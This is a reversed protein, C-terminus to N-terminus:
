AISELRTTPRSITSNFKEITNELCSSAATLKVYLDALEAAQESVDGRVSARAIQLFQAVHHLPPLGILFEQLKREAAALANARAELASLSIQKQAVREAQQACQGFLRTVECDSSDSASGSNEALATWWFRRLASQWEEYADHPGGVADLELGNLHGSLNTRYLTTDDPMAAAFQGSALANFARLVADVEIRAAPASTVGKGPKRELLRSLHPQFVWANDCYPATEFAHASGGEIVVLPLNTAAAVHVPGSDASVMLSADCCLDILDQVSTKGCLDVLRPHAAFSSASKHAGAGIVSVHAGRDLLEKALGAFREEPWQKDSQSAGAHLIVHRFVDLSRGGAARGVLRRLVPTRNKVTTAPAVANVYIDVLNFSCWPRALNTAFFYQLWRNNVVQHGSEDLAVGDANSAVMSALVMSPRTHTVNIVHDYKVASLRRSLSLYAEYPLKNGSSLTGLIEAFDITLIEDAGVLESAIDSFTREVLLTV